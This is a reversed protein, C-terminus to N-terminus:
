NHVIVGSYKWLFYANQPNGRKINTLIGFFADNKTM